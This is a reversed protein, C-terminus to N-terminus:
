KMRGLPNRLALPGALPNRIGAPGGAVSVREEFVSSGVTVLRQGTEVYIRGNVIVTRAM